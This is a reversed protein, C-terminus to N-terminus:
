KQGRGMNVQATKLGKATGSISVITPVKFAKDAALKSRFDQFLMEDGSVATLQVFEDAKGKSGPMQGIKVSSFGVGNPRCAMLETFAGYPNTEEAKAQKIIGMEGQIKALGAQADKYQAQLSPSAEPALFSLAVFGAGCLVNIGLLGACLAYLGKAIARGKRSRVAAERADKPLLNGSKVRVFAPKATLAPNDDEDSDGLAQFLTGVACLWLMQEAPAIEDSKTFFEPFRPLEAPMRQKIPVINLIGMDGTLPIHEMDTRLATFTQSAAFDSATYVDNVTKAATPGAEKLAEVSISPADYRFIGGAPSYTVICTHEGAFETLAYDDGWTGRCFYFSFSAPEVSALSLGEAKFAQLIKDLIEKKLAYTTRKQPAPPQTEIPSCIYFNELSDGLYAALTARYNEESLFDLADIYSFIYDPLVVYAEDKALSMEGKVQKLFARLRDVTEENQELVEPIPERERFAQAIIVKNKKDARAKVLQTKDPAFYISVM